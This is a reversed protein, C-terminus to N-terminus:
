ALGLRHHRLGANLRSFVINAYYVTNHPGFALVPDGASDM